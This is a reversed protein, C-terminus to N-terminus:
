PTGRSGDRRSGGAPSAPATGHGAARRVLASLVSSLLNVEVHQGAGTRDRHRLAAVIGLAAHLGTVVDVLAVGVKLPGSEESGTVSMLGGVAQVILDYGPLAAGRGAGFGTVSCYVLGPNRSALDDYGLWTVLM